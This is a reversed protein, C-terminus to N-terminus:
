HTPETGFVVRWQNDYATDRPMNNKLREDKAKTLTENKKNVAENGSKRLDENANTAKVTNTDIVAKNAYLKATEAKIETNVAATRLRQNQCYQFLVLVLLLIVIIWALRNTTQATM